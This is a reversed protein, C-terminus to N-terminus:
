LGWPRSRLSPRSRNRCDLRFDIAGGTARRFLFV